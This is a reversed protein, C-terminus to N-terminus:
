LAPLLTQISTRMRAMEAALRTRFTLHQQAMACAWLGFAAERVAIFLDLYALQELPLPQHSAYGALFAQQIAPYASTMRQEWLAVAIDYVWYGFGCDDFDIPRAEERHFLVNDLHLDAHILGWADSSEGLARMAMKAKEGVAAL